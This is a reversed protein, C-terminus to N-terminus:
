IDEQFIHLVVYGQFNQPEKKVLAKSQSIVEDFNQQKVAEVIAKLAAKTGSM